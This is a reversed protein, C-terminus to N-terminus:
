KSTNQEKQALPALVDGQAPGSESAVCVLPTARQVFELGWQHGQSGFRRTAGVRPAHTSPAWDEGSRIVKAAVRTYCYPNVWVIQVGYPGIEVRGTRDALPGLATTEPSSHWDLPRFQRIPGAAAGYAAAAREGAATWDHIASQETPETEPRTEVPPPAKSHVTRRPRQMSDRQVGATRTRQQDLMPLWILTSTMRDVAQVVRVRSPFIIVVCVLFLHLGVALLLALRQQLRWPQTEGM